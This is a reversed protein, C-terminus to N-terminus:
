AILAYTLGRKRCLCNILCNQLWKSCVKIHMHSSSLDAGYEELLNHVDRYKKPNINNKADSILLWLPSQYDSNLGNIDVNCQKLYFILDKLNNPLNSYNEDRTSVLAQVTIHLLNNDNHDRYSGLLELSSIINIDITNKIIQSEIIEAPNIDAALSIMSYLLPLLCPLNKYNM